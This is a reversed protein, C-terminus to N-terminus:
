NGLLPEIKRHFIAEWTYDQRVKRRLRSISNNEVLHIIQEATTEPAQNKDFIVADQNAIECSAPVDSSVIPLGVLGAELVPM